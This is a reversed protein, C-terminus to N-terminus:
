HQLDGDISPESGLYIFQDVGEPEKEELLICSGDDTNAKM